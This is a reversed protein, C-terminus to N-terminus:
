EADSLSLTWRWVGAAGDVVFRGRALLGMGIVAHSGDPVDILVAAAKQDVNRTRHSSFGVVVEHHKNPSRMWLALTEPFYKSCMWTPLLLDEAVATSLLAGVQFIPHGKHNPGVFIPAFCM